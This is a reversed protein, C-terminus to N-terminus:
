GITRHAILYADMGDLHDRVWPPCPFDRPAWMSRHYAWQNGFWWCDPTEVPWCNPNWYDPLPTLVLVTRSAVEVSQQLVSWGRSKTVHELFDLLLVVDFSRPRFPLDERELDILVNPEAKEWADVSVIGACGLDHYRKDGGGVDLVIDAPRIFSRVWELLVPTPEEGSLSRV